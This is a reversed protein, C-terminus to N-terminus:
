SRRRCPRAIVGDLETEFLALRTVARLGLDAVGGLRADGRDAEEAFDAQLVRGVLLEAIFDGDAREIAHLVDVDDADALAFAKAPTM